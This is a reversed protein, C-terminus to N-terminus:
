IGLCTCFPTFEYRGNLSKVDGVAPYAIHMGAVPIKNKSVYELIKKRSAIAQEPNVDYTIAVEPHPMQVAMAHTLDGWVLLRADGSEILFATHGPTHGFAALPKLGHINVNQNEPSSAPTFLKLKKGYAEFITGVSNKREDETWYDYESQAVCLEAKPFAAKEDRLLGGIHDRHMHTLIVADIQEVNLGLSEINKFLNRGFGTDILIKKGNIQVLFANCASPCNGDPAYKKLIEPTAGILNNTSSNSQGESLLSITAEGVQFTIVNQEQASIEVIFLITLLTTLICRNM